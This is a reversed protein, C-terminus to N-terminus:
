VHTEGQTKAIAARLLQDCREWQAHASECDGDCDCDGDIDNHGMASIAAQCAALLEPAAAILRADDITLATGVLLGHASRIEIPGRDAPSTNTLSWPARSLRDTAM